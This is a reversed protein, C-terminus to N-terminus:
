NNANRGIVIYIYSHDHALYLANYNKDKPQFFFDEEDLAFIIM